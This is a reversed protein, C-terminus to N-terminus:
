TGAPWWSDTVPDYVEAGAFITAYGTDHGGAVLVKGSQLLTASFAYRYPAAPQRVASWTGSAPDYVEAFTASGGLALVKGNALSIAVHGARPSSMAGTASWSASVPDYIEASALSVSVDSVGGAVLVKGDPLLTATHYARPASMYRTFAWAPQAKAGTAEGVYPLIQAICACPLGVLVSLLLAPVIRKL